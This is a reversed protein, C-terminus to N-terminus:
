RPKATGARSRRLRETVQNLEKRILPNEPFESAMEALLKQAQEPQKERLYMVALLIKAFPRYYVGHQAVLRMDEMGKQRSGQIRELHILWRFYWPISGVVYEVSGMTLYADYFPPKLDLLKRAYFQTQRSLAFSGFRRREVLAAWDTVVGTAMCMAFLADRDDPRVALRASGRRKAEEVAKFLEERIKADPQLRRRDVLKDDDMFFDTELIKLRNLESFLHAAARASYTLPDAPDQRAHENLIAHAGAFDFNYLRNLARNIAANIEVRPPQAALLCSAAVLVLIPGRFTM